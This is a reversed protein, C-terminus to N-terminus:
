LDLRKWAYEVLRTCGPREGNRKVGATRHVNAFAAIEPAARLAALDGFRERLRAADAKVRARLEPPSDGVRLGEFVIAGARLGLDLCQQAVVFISEARPVGAGGCGKVILLYRLWSVTAPQEFAPVNTLVGSYM